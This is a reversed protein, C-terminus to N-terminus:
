PCRLTQFTVTDSAREGDISKAFVKATRQVEDPYTTMVTPNTSFATDRSGNNTFDWAFRTQPNDSTASLTVQVNDGGQCMQDQVFATVTLQPAAAAPVAAIVAIVLVGLVVNLRKNKM